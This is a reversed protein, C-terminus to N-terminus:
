LAERNFRISSLAIERDRGNPETWTVRVDVARTAGAVLDTVRHEVSYTIESADTGNRQVVNAVDPDATFGTTTTLSTWRLAQLDEMQADAIAAARNAHRGANGGRMAQLQMVALSLLGFALVGIIITVEILSLGSERSRPRIRNVEM